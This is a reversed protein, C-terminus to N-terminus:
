CLDFNPSCVHRKGFPGAFQYDRGIVSDHILQIINEDSRLNKLPQPHEPHSNEEKEISFRKRHPEPLM